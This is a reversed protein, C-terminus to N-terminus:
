VGEVTDIRFFKVILCVADGEASPQHGAVSLQCLQQLLSDSIAKFLICHLKILEHSVPIVFSYQVSDRLDLKVLLFRESRINFLMLTHLNERIGDIIDLDLTHM